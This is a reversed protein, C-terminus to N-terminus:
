LPDYTSLVRTTNPQRQNIGIRSAFTTTLHPISVAFTRLADASHSAWKNSRKAETSYPPIYSHLAAIGEACHSRDFRCQPLINAVAEVGSQVSLKPAVIVKTNGAMTEFKKFTSIEASIHGHMSDHPLIHMGYNYPKKSIHKFVRVDFAENLDGHGFKSNITEKNVELYDVIRYEGNTIQFFWVVTMDSKGLDWATIVPVNNVLELTDEIKGANQLAILAHSYVSGSDVAFWDCMYERAYDHPSMTEQLNTLEAEDIAKTDQPLLTFINWQKRPDQKAQHFMDYWYGQGVTGTLIAWGKRDALMPRIVESWTKAQHERMEDMVVGDLYSGKISVGGEDAGRIMIKRVGFGDLPDFTIDLDTESIEANPLYQAMPKLYEDWVNTKATLKKPTIYLYRANRQKCNLSSLIMHLLVMVTKGARRHAVLMNFRGMKKVVELQWPRFAWPFFIHKTQNKIFEM